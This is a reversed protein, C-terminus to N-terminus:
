LEEIKYQEQVHRTERSTEYVEKLSYHYFLNCLSFRSPEFMPGVFQHNKLLSGGSTGWCMM